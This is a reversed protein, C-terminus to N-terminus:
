TMMYGYGFDLVMYLGNVIYSSYCYLKIFQGARVIEVFVATIIYCLEYNLSLASDFWHYLSFHYM